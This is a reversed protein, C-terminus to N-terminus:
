PFLPGPMITTCSGREDDGVGGPRYACGPSACFYEDYEKVQADVEGAKNTKVVLIGTPIPPILHCVGPMTYQPMYPTHSGEGSGDALRFPKEFESNIFENYTIGDGIKENFFAPNLGNHQFLENRVMDIDEQVIGPNSCEVIQKRPDGKTVFEHFSIFPRHEGFHKDEGFNTCKAEQWILKMKDCTYSAGPVSGSVSYDEDSTDGIFKNPFQGSVYASMTSTVTAELAMELSRPDMAVYMLMPAAPIGLSHPVIRPGWDTANSFIPGGEGETFGVFQDACTYEIVSDPKTLLIQSTVYDEQVEFSAKGRMVKFVDIDCASTQLNTSQNYQIRGGTTKGSNNTKSPVVLDNSGDGLIDGLVDELVGDLLESVVEGAAESVAESVADSVASEVAGSVASEVAASVEEQVAEAVAGSVADQVAESVAGQVAESVAGQVAESVQQQVQETVQQTIEDVNLDSLDPFSSLADAVAGDVAESVTDQVANSVQETVNDLVQTQIAETVQDTVQAQIESINTMDEINSLADGVQDSVVNTVNDEIADLNLDSIDLDPIQDSIQDSIQDNINVQAYSVPSTAAMVSLALAVFAMGKLSPAPIRMGSLSPPM